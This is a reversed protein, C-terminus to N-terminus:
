KDRAIDQRQPDPSARRVCRFGYAEYGFCVDAFGPPASARASCRCADESSSWSGGRLVREQGTKPGRPDFTETHQRYDESAFDQCWEAVNGHMDYLGWPNPAKQKVPHTMRGSNGKFWAFSGLRSADNGFYYRTATGARCAYEWEAETPLRYGDADFDCQLSKLDYCPKLGERLSRMNCYRIAAFWSVREVPRDPGSFKAPNDGMLSRYSQQTVECRDMYFSSIQVRHAPKEDDDGQNDGMLFKGGPILVMELNDKTTIVQPGAAAPEAVTPSPPQPQEGPRGCGGFVIGLM